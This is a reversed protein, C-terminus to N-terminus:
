SHRRAACGGRNAVAHSAHRTYENRARASLRVRLARAIWVSARACTWERQGRLIFRHRRFSAERCSSTAMRVRHVTRACSACRRRTPSDPASPQLPVVCDVAIRTHKVCALPPTTAARCRATSGLSSRRRALFSRHALLSPRGSFDSPAASRRSFQRSFICAASQRGGGDESDPIPEASSCPAVIVDRRSANLRSRDLIWHLLGFSFIM